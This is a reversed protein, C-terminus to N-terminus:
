QIYLVVNRASGHFLCGIIRWSALGHRKIRSPTMYNVDVTKNKL